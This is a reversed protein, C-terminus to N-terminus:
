PARHQATIAAVFAREEALHQELREATPASRARELWFGDLAADILPRERASAADDSARKWKLYAVIAVAEERTFVSLRYRAYDLSTMAGYRRPNILATKGWRRVFVRGGVREEYSQDTFGNTLHFVPEAAQLRGRVDAILFAPLFYRFGAESFFSLAAAHADLFEPELSAWDATGKFAGVEEYPEDGDFSGQLVADGPHASRAFADRIAAVVVEGDPVDNVAM